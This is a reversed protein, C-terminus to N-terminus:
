VETATKEPKGAPSRRRFRLRCCSRGSCLRDGHEFVIGEGFEAAWASYESGCIREGIIGALHKRNSKLLLDYWPCRSLLVEFGSGDPERQTTFDFGEIGLKATFCEYLGELGDGLGTLEKLKRAQIKPMVQWVADDIDLAAEFGNAEETKVFWLGDVATYSRHFYEAIQRDTLRSM